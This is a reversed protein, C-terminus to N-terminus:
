KIVIISSVIEAGVVLARGLNSSANLDRGPNTFPEYSLVDCHGLCWPCFNIIGRALHKDQGSLSLQHFPPLVIAPVM